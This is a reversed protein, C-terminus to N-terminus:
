APEHQRHLELADREGLLQSRQRREEEREEEKVDKWAQYATPDYIYELTPVFRLERGGFKRKFISIDTWGDRPENQPTVGFLDYCQCGRAKARRMIEFQLMYPAMVNRHVARSGGYFYTAMHGSYLVLATALRMGQYEAFYINGHEPASLRPILAHFYEADHADLGKRDFTERYINLFDEIGQQSADEVVSVGYRQAVGLSYRGKQKMQALIASESLTLDICQTNRPSGYYHSSVQFGKVFSPVQEWRPSICLHSVLLPENKRKREIFEMIRDFVQGQESISDEELFVPGEPISYYCAGPASSYVLVTAGGVITNGDRLVIGFRGAGRDVNFDTFWSTQSFDTNTRAKLFEDWAKWAAEDQM